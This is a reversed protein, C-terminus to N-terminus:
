IEIFEGTRIYLLYSAVSKIKDGLNEIHKVIRILRIIKRRDGSQSLLNEHATYNASNINQDIEQIFSLAHGNVDEGDLIDVTKELMVVCNQLMSDLLIKTEDYISEPDSEVLKLWNVAVHQMIDLMSELEHVVVADCVVARKLVGALFLKGVINSLHEIIRITEMDSNAELSLVKEVMKNSDGEGGIIHLCLRCAEQADVLLTRLDSKTKNLEDLIIKTV